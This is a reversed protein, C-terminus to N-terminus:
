KSAQAVLETQTGQVPYRGREELVDRLNTMVAYLEAFLEPHKEPDGLWPGIAKELRAKIREDSIRTEERTMMQRIKWRTYDSGMREKTVEDIDFATMLLYSAFTEGALASAVAHEPHHKKVHELMPSMLAHVQQLKALKNEGLVAADRLLNGEFTKGCPTGDKKFLRCKTPTTILKPTDAVEAM